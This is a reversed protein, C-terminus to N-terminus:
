TVNHVYYLLSIYFFIDNTTCNVVYSVGYDWLKFQLNLALMLELDFLLLIFSKMKTKYSFRSKEKINLM